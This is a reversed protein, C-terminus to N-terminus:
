DGREGRLSQIREVGGPLKAALNGTPEIVKWIPVVEAQPVGADLADMTVEAAVRLNMGCMVPCTGDADHMKALAGRLETLTMTADDPLANAVSEIDQPSPILVSTGAPLDAFQKDNTKVYSAKATDYRRQYDVPM